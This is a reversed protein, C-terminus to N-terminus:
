FPYRDSISHFWDLQKQSLNRGSSASFYISELFEKENANKFVRKDIMLQIRAEYEALTRAKVTHWQPPVFPLMFWEETGFNWDWHSPDSGWGTPRLNPRTQIWTWTTTNFTWGKGAPMGPKVRQRAAGFNFGHNPPAPHRPPTPGNAHAFANPAPNWKPTPAAQAPAPLEPDEPEDVRKAFETLLIGIDVFKLPQPVPPEDNSMNGALLKSIITIAAAREHESDSDLRPIVKAIKLILASM